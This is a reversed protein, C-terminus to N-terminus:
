ELPAVSEELDKWVKDSKLQIEAPSATSEVPAETKKQTAISAIVREHVATEMVREDKRLEYIRHPPVADPGAAPKDAAGGVAPLASILLVLLGYKMFM